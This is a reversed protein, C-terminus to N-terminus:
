KMWESQALVMYIGLGGAFGIGECLEPTRTLIFIEEKRPADVVMHVPNAAFLGPVRVDNIVFGTSDYAVAM